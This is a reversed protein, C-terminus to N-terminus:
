GEKDLCVVSPQWRRRDLGTSLALLAREAGGVDLDTIVLTIPVPHDPWPRRPATALRRALPQM